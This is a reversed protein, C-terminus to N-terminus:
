GESAGTGEPRRGSSDVPVLAGGSRGVSYGDSAGTDKSRDGSSDVPM